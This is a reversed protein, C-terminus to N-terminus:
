LFIREVQAVTAGQGMVREVRHWDVGTLALELAVPYPLGLGEFHAVRWERVRDDEDRGFQPPDAPTPVEPPVYWRGPFPAPCPM